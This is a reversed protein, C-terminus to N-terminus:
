NRNPTKEGSKKLDQLAKTSDIQRAIKNENGQQESKQGILRKDSTHTKTHGPLHRSIGRNKLHSPLAQIKKHEPTKREKLYKSLPLYHDEVFVQYHPATIYIDGKDDIHIEVKKLEQNFSGSIDTGNLFINRDSCAEAQVNEYPPLTINLCFLAILWRKINVCSM